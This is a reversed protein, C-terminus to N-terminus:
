EISDVTDELLKYAEEVFEERSIDEETLEGRIVYKQGDIEVYAIWTDDLDQAVYLVVGDIIISETDTNAYFYASPVEEAEELWLSSGYISKIYSNEAEKSEAADYMNSEAASVASDASLGGDYDESEYAEEAVAAEEMAPAADTNSSGKGIPEYAADATEGATDATEFQMEMGSDSAPAGGSPATNLQSKGINGLGMVAVNLLLVCVAAASVPLAWKYVKGYSRKPQLVTNQQLRERAIRQEEERVAEKTRRILDAPAHIQSTEKNYQDMNYQNMMM